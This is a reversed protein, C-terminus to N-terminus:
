VGQKLPVRYTRLVINMCLCHFVIHEPVPIDRATFPLKCFHFWCTQSGVYLMILSCVYAYILKIWWCKNCCIRWCYGDVVCLSMNIDHMLRNAIFTSQRVVANLGWLFAWNECTIFHTSQWLSVRNVRKVSLASVWCIFSMNGGVGCVCRSALISVSNSEVKLWIIDYYLCIYNYFWM